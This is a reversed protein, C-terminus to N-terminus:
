DDYGEELKEKSFLPGPNDGPGGCVCGVNESSNYCYGM